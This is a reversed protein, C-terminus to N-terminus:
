KLIQKLSFPIYQMCSYFYVQAPSWLIAQLLYFLSFSMWTCNCSHHSVAFRISTTAIGLQKNSNSTLNEIICILFQKPKRDPKEIDQVMTFVTLVFKHFMQVFIEKLLPIKCITSRSFSSVFSLGDPLVSFVTMRFSFLQDTSQELLCLFVTRRQFLKCFANDLERQSSQVM